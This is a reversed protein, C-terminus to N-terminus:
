SIGKRPSIKPTISDITIRRIQSFRTLGMCAIDIEKLATDFFITVNHM